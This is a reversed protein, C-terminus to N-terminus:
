RTRPRGPRLGALQRDLWQQPRVGGTRCSELRHELDRRSLLRQRHLEHLLAENCIERALLFVLLYEGRKRGAERRAQQVIQAITPSPATSDHGREAM